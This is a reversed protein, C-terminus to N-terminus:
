VPKVIIVIPLQVFSDLTIQQSASNVYLGTSAGGDLNLATDISLDSAALLDALEDLSFSQNPSVIFLMRGQKDMAVVSRRQQAANAQIQTRQGGAMLMPSSQTAEQLQEGKYPQLHLSRLSVNGQPDVALMGGFGQYSTGSPQGNSVVLATANDHEDFYGGNILALAQTQKMWDSLHQPQNPQYGVSLRVHALDFRTIIVTDSTDGPSKWHEYRIEVGTNAKIWQNLPLDPQPTAIKETKTATSSSIVPAGNYSVTCALLSGVMLSLVILMKWQNKAPM